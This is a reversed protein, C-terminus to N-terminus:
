HQDGDIAARLHTRQKVLSHVVPHAHEARGLCLERVPEGPARGLRLRAELDDLLRREHVAGERVEDRAHLLGVPSAVVRQEEAAHLVRALVRARRQEEVAPAVLLETGLAITTPTTPSEAAPLVVTVRPRVRTIPSLWTVCM